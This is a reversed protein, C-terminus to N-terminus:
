RPPLFSVTRPSRAEVVAKSGRQLHGAACGAMYRVRLDKGSHTIVFELRAAREISGDVVDGAIKLTKGHLDSKMASFEDVTIYYSKSEQFGV